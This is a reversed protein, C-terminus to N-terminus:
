RNRPDTRQWQDFRASILLSAARGRWDLNAIVGSSMDLNLGGEDEGLAVNVVRDWVGSALLMQNDGWYRATNLLTFAFSCTKCVVGLCCRVTAFRSIAGGRPAMLMM